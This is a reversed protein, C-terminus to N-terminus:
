LTGEKGRAMENLWPACDPNRFSTKASNGTVIIVDKPLEMKRLSELKIMWGDPFTPQDPIWHGYMDQESRYNQMLIESDKKFDDYIWGLAGPDYLMTAAQYKPIICPSDFLMTATQYRSIVGFDRKEKWKPVRTNFAVWNGKFDLIPQLSRVAHSDLDMYLTRGKPLDTRFLEVKAWWGPWDNKLMIKEGPVDANADNTLCYFDFPRDIHKNVSEYLRVVDKATYDRGRFDGMWLLCIINVKEKM